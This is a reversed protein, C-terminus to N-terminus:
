TILKPYSIFQLPMIDYNILQDLFYWQIDVQMRLVRRNFKKRDLTKRVLIVMVDEEANHKRRDM